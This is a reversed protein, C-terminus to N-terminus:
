MLWREIWTRRAARLADTVDRESFQYGHERGMRVLQGAFEDAPVGLLRRFLTSRECIVRRFAELDNRPDTM